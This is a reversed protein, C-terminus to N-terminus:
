YSKLTTLVATIIPVEFDGMRDKDFESEVLAIAELREPLFECLCRRLEISRFLCQDGFMTIAEVPGISHFAMNPNERYLLPVRFRNAYEVRLAAYAAAMAKLSETGENM